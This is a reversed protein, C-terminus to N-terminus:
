IVAILYGGVLLLGTSLHLGINVQMAQMLSYPREYHQEIDRWVKVALPAPLLALQTWIPTIGVAGGTAILAFALWASLAYVRVVAKKSWRVVVTRKEAAADGDRDPIENVYLVLAILIAVPISAYLAEASFRGTLVYYAGLTTIPGFGLMVAPEGLGRHVLRFPPATYALSIVIGAIGIVYLWRGRTEALYIGIGAGFLYLSAATLGMTRRSVLGYQIVRSGGSFPTPTVNAADAGSLDDFFDNAVNLGLHLSCAGLLVLLFIGWNFTGYYAAIAGGLAVPVITATLFPL